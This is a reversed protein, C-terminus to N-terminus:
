WRQRAPLRHLQKENPKLLPRARVCTGVVLFQVTSNGVNATIASTLWHTTCHLLRARFSVGRHDPKVKGDPLYASQDLNKAGFSVYCWRKHSLSTFLNASHLSLVVLIWSLSYSFLFLLVTYICSFKRHEKLKFKIWMYTCSSYLDCM